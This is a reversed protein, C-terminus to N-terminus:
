SQNTGADHLIEEDDFLYTMLCLYTHKEKRLVIIVCMSTM